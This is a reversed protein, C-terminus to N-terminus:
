DQTEELYKSMTSKLLPIPQHQPTSELDYDEHIKKGNSFGDEMFGSHHEIAFILKKRLEEASQYIGIDITNYCTHGLPLMSPTSDFNLTHTTVAKTIRSSGTVFQLYKILQSETFTKLVEWFMEYRSWFEHESTIPKSEDM